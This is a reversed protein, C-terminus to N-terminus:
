SEAVLDLLVLREPGKALLRLEVDQAGRVDQGIRELLHELGVPNGARLVVHQPDQSAGLRLTEAPVFNSLPQQVAHRICRPQEVSHFLGTQDAPLSTRDVPPKDRGPDGPLAPLNDVSEVLCCIGLM